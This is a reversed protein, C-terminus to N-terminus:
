YERERERRKEVGEVEGEEGGGRRGEWGRGKLIGGGKDGGEEGEGEGWLTTLQDSCGGHGERLALGHVGKLEQATLVVNESM